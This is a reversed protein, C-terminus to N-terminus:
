TRSQAQRVLTAYDTMLHATSNVLSVRCTSESMEILNLCANDQRIRWFAELDSDLLSLLLLRNVGGHGVIAVVKGHNEEIVQMFGNFVRRQVDQLKEAEPIHVHGPHTLWNKFEDPYNTSLYDTTKGEWLGFSMEIFSEKVCPTLGHPTSIIEATRKSRSLPSCYINSIPSSSLARSLSTVQDVGERSLGIDTRGQLRRENNWSTGGHRALIVVAKVHSM